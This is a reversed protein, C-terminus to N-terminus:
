PQKRKFLTEDMCSGPPAGEHAPESGRQASIANGIKIMTSNCIRRHQVVISYSSAAFASSRLVSQIGYPNESPLFRHWLARGCATLYAVQAQMTILTANRRFACPPPQCKEVSRCMGVSHVFVAMRCYSICGENLPFRM